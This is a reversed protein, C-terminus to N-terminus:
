PSYGATFQYTGDLTDTFAVLGNPPLARAAGENNAPCPTLIASQSRTRKDLGDSSSGPSHESVCFTSDTSTIDRIDGKGSSLCNRSNM